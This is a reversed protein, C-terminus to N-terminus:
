DATLCIDDDPRFSQGYSHTQYPLIPLRDLQFALPLRASLCALPCGRLQVQALLCTV